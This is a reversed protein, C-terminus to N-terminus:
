DDLFGADGGPPPPPLDARRFLYRYLEDLRGQARWHQYDLTAFRDHYSSRLGRGQRARWVNQLIVARRERVSTDPDRRGYAFDMAHVLEHVFVGSRWRKSGPQVSEPNLFVTSGTPEKGRREKPLRRLPETHSRTRDGDKHWTSSDDTVPRITIPVPAAAVRAYLERVPADPSTRLVELLAETQAKFSPPAGPGTEVSVGAAASAAWFWLLLIKKM